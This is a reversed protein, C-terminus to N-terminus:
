FEMKEIDLGNENSMKWILEKKEKIYKYWELIHEEYRKQDYEVTQRKNNEMEEVKEKWLKNIMVLTYPIYNWELILNCHKCQPYVNLLDFTYISSSRKIFHGAQCWWEPEQWFMRLNCTICNCYWHDDSYYLRDYESFVRHALLRWWIKWIPKWTKPWYYRLIEARTEANESNQIEEVKKKTTWLKKYKSLDITKAM